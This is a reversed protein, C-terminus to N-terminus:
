ALNLPIKCNYIKYIKKNQDKWNLISDPDSGQSGTRHGCCQQELFFNIMWLCCIKWLPFINVLSLIKCQQFNGGRPCKMVHRNVSDLLTQRIENFKLKINNKNLKIEEWVSNLIIFQFYFHGNKRLEYQLLLTKVWHKEDINKICGQLLKRKSGSKCKFKKHYALHQFIHKWISTKAVGRNTKYEEDFNESYIMKLFLLDYHKSVFLM